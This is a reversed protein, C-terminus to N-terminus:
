GVTYLMLMNIHTHLRLLNGNPQSHTLRQLRQDLLHSLLIATYDMAQAMSDICLLWDDIFKLIWIGIGLLPTIAPQVCKTFTRSALSWGFPLTQYEYAVGLHAFRPFM